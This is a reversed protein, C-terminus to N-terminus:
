CFLLIRLSIYVQTLRVKSKSTKIAFGLIIILLLFILNLERQHLKIDLSHYAAFSAMLYTHYILIFSSSFYGSNLISPFSLFQPQHFHSSLISYIRRVVKRKRRSKRGSCTVSKKKEDQHGFGRRHTHSHTPPYLLFSPVNTQCVFLHREHRGLRKQCTWRARVEVYGEIDM